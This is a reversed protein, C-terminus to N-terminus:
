NAAHPFKDRTGNFRHFSRVLKRREGAMESWRRVYAIGKEYRTVVVETGKAIVSGDESRAGCVRRTGVQSYIIEGTGGERIPMSLKGLVGVMEYDAPDLHGGRSILVESLFLFVIAGGILGAIVSLSLAFGHCVLLLRFAHASIRHWWVVGSVGRISPPNFPSVERRQACAGSDTGARSMAQRLPGHAVPGHTPLHGGAHGHGHPLHPIHVRDGRVRIRVFQVCFGVVFCVLYFRGLDYPEGGKEVVAAAHRRARSGEPRLAELLREALGPTDLIAGLLLFCSRTDKHRAVKLLVDSM